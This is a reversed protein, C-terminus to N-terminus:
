LSGTAMWIKFQRNFGMIETNLNDILEFALRARLDRPIKRMIDSEVCVFFSRDVSKDILRTIAELTDVSYMM